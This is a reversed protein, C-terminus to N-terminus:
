KKAKKEREKIRPEYYNKMVLEHIKIYRGTHYVLGIEEFAQLNGLRRDQKITGPQLGWLKEAENTFMVKKMSGICSPCVTINAPDATNNYQYFLQVPEQDEKIWNDCVTCSKNSRLSTLKELRYRLDKLQNDILGQTTFRVEFPLTDKILAFQDAARELEVIKEKTSEIISM